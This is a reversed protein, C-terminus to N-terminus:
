PRPASKPPLRDKPDADPAPVPAPPIKEIRDLNYNTPLDSDDGIERELVPTSAPPVPMPAKATRHWFVGMAVVMLGGCVLPLGLGLLILLWGWAPMGSRPKRLVYEPADQFESRAPQPQNSPQAQFDDPM